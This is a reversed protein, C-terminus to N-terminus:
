SQGYGCTTCLGGFNLKNALDNWEQVERYFLMNKQFNCEPFPVYLNQPHKRTIVNNGDVEMVVNNCLYDPALGYIYMQFDHYM